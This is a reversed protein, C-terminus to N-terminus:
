IMPTKEIAIKNQARVKTKDLTVIVFTHLAIAAFM